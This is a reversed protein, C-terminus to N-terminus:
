ELEPCQWVRHRVIKGKGRCTKCPGVPQSSSKVWEGRHVEFYEEGDVVMFRKAMVKKLRAGAAPLGKTFEPAGAAQKFQKEGWPSPVQQKAGGFGM